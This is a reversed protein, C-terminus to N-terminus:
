DVAFAIFLPQYEVQQIIRIDIFFGSSTGAWFSAFNTPYRDSLVELFLGLFQIQGSSDRRM